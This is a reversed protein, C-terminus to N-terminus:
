FYNKNCGQNENYYNLLLLLTHYTGVIQKRNSENLRDLNRKREATVRMSKINEAPKLAQAAYAKELHM